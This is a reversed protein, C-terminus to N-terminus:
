VPIAGFHRLADVIGFSCNREAVYGGADIVARKVAEVANAPCATYEAFRGDLMPLDNYHDGAAFINEREIGVLRALEGLATGKSYAEHCFRLYITNRMFNFGPVRVRENELFACVENMQADTDTVIGVMRDGDFEFHAWDEGDFRKHIDTLLPSAQSFLWDHDAACRKNWDGYDEWQGDTTRRFVERESTLVFDPAIPFGFENIGSDIHWLVRGTNIAWLVGKSQLGVLAEFLEPAVAPKGGHEVLTGDFDTSLLKIMLNLTSAEADFSVNFLDL